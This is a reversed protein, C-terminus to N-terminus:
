GSVPNKLWLGRNFGEMEQFGPKKTPLTGLEWDFIM